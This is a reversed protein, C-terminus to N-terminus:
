NVINTILVNKCISHTFLAQDCYARLEMGANNELERFFEDGKGPRRFTIDSSGIRIFDEIYLVYAYSEKVYISPVIEIIGNQGHFKITKSGNEAKESGYSQDYSRLASQETLLDSWASPNVFVVVDGDLGKEVAKAVANQVIEFSLEGSSASYSNGKWLSYESADIGFIEGTNTLIKHVGAFEKSYAGKHWIIDTAVVGAPLVDVTVTRTDFAVATVNAQGRLVGAASRIEIPMGEAGAWIGPAWQGVPIVINSGSVSDVTAYGVQGYFLEIELKKVVSRLMNAVLWKTAQMFAKSGGAASRSIAGYGIASRLVLQTGRVNADQMGSSLPANLAFADEGSAAFTVGHEHKLIVPQHYFGGLQEKKGFPIMNYLKAGDPILNEEKDAYVEKFLANLNPIGNASM